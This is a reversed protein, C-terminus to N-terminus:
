KSLGVRLGHLWDAAVALQATPWKSYNTPITLVDDPVGTPVDNGGRCPLPGFDRRLYAAFEAPVVTHRGDVHSRINVERDVLRTVSVVRNLLGDPTLNRNIARYMRSAKDDAYWLGFRYGSLWPFYVKGGVHDDFRLFPRKHPDSYQIRLSRQWTIPNSMHVPLRFIPWEGPPETPSRDPDGEISSAVGEVLGGVVEKTLGGVAGTGAKLVGELAKQTEPNAFISSVLGAVAEALTSALGAVLSLAKKAVPGVDDLVGGANRALASLTSGATDVKSAAEALSSAVNEGAAPEKKRFLGGIRDFFSPAQQIAGSLAATNLATAGSILSEQLARSTESSAAARLKDAAARNSADRRAKKADAEVRAALNRATAADREAEIVRLEDAARQKAAKEERDFQEEPSLVAVDSPPLGHDSRISARLTGLTALTEPPMFQAVDPAVPVGVASQLAAEGAAHLAPLVNDASTGWEDDAGPLDDNGSAARFRTALQNALIASLDDTQQHTKAAGAPNTPRLRAQAARLQEELSQPRDGYSSPPRVLLEAVRHAFMADAVDGYTVNGVVPTRLAAVVDPSGIFIAHLISTMLEQLVIKLLKSVAKGGVKAVLQGLRGSVKVVTDIVEKGTNGGVAGLKQVVPNKMLGALMANEGQATTMNSGEPPADAVLQQVKPNQLIKNVIADPNIGYEAFATRIAQATPKFMEADVRVIHVYDAVSEVAPEIEVVMEDDYDM